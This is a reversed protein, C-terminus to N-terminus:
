QLVFSSSTLPIVAMIMRLPYQTMAMTLSNLSLYLHILLILITNQFTRKVLCSLPPLSFPSPPTTTPKQLQLQRYCLHETSHLEQGIVIGRGQEKGGGTSAEKIPVMTAMTITM